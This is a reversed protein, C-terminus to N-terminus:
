NGSMQARTFAPTVDHVGPTDRLRKDNLLIHANTHKKFRALATVHERTLIYASEVSFDDRFTIAVLVDFHGDNLNRIDSFQPAKGDPNHRLSKIEYRTGDKDTADFGTPRIPRSRSTSRAAPSGSATAPPRTTTRACSAESAYSM